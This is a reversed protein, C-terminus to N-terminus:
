RGAPRLPALESRRLPALESRREWVTAWCVPDYDPVRGGRPLKLGKVTAQGTRPFAGSLPAFIADADPSPAAARRKRGAFRPTFPPLESKKMGMRMREQYLDRSDEPSFHQTNELAERWYQRHMEPLLFTTEQAENVWRVVVREQRTLGALFRRDDAGGSLDLLRTYGSEDKVAVCVYASAWGVERYGLAGIWFTEQRDSWREPYFDNMQRDPEPWVRFNERRVPTLVDIRVVGADDEILVANLRM